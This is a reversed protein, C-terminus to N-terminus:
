LMTSTGAFTKDKLVYAAFVDANRHAKAVDRLHAFAGWASVAGALCYLGFVVCQAAVSVRLQGKRLDKHCFRELCRCHLFCLVPQHLVCECSQWEAAFAFVPAWVFLDAAATCGMMLALLLYTAPNARGSAGALAAAATTLDWAVRPLRMALSDSLWWDPDGPPRLM